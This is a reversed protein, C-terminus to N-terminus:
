KKKVEFDLVWVFPNWEIALCSNCDCDSIGDMKRNEIQKFVGKPIHPKNLEGFKWLFETPYWGESPTYGEKLNDEESIDLLREKRIGTITIRLPKFDFSSCDPCKLTEMKSNFDTYSGYREYGYDPGRKGKWYLHKCHLCYWLGPNGRLPEDDEKLQRLFEEDSVEASITHWRDTQVAYDKGVQWKTKKNKHVVIIKGNDSNYLEGEKVLVRHQTKESNLIMEAVPKPYLKDSFIM